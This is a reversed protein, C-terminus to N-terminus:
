YTREGPEICCVHNGMISSTLVSFISFFHMVLVYNIQTVFCLTNEVVLKIECWNTLM